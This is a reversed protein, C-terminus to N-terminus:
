NRLLSKLNMNCDRASDDVQETNDQKLIVCVCVCVCVISKFRFWGCVCVCAYVCM